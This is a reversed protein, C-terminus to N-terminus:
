GTWVLQQNELYYTQGMQWAQVCQHVRRGLRLVVQEAIADLQWFRYESLEAAPLRIAAIDAKTLIGGLFVFALAETKDSSASIYDVGLLQQPQWVLGLEEEIERVCAQLPSEDAEVAGGPIEWHPKYTPKVLLLRGNEDFFLAGASMRKRPLSRQYAMGQLGDREAAM